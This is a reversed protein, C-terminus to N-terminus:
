SVAAMAPRQTVWATSVSPWFLAHAQASFQQLTAARIGRLDLYQKPSCGLGDLALAPEALLRTLYERDIMARGIAGNIRDRLRAESAEISSVELSDYPLFARMDRQSM